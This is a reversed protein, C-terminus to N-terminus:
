GTNRDQGAAHNTKELDNTPQAQRHTEVRLSDGEVIIRSESYKADQVVERLRALSKIPIDALMATVLWRPLKGGPDLHQQWILEVTGDSLQNLRYSGVADTIRVYRDADIRSCNASAHKQCYAPAAELNIDVQKASDRHSLRAKLIIDRDRVWPLDNRQYIYQEREGSIAVTFSQECRHIWRSYNEVDLLVALVRAMSAPILTVARFEPISSDPHDRLFFSVGHEQKDLRWDPGSNATPIVLLAIALTLILRISGSVSKAKNNRDAAPREPEPCEPRIM